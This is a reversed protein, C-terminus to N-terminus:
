IQAYDNQAGYYGKSNSEEEVSNPSTNAKKLDHPEIAMSIEEPDLVEVCVKKTTM